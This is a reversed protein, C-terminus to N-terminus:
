EKKGYIWLKADKGSEAIINEITKLIIDAASAPSYKGPIGPLFVYNINKQEAIQPNTGGPMSALDAFPVGATISDLEKEGFIRHPVTNFIIDAEKLASHMDSIRVSKYGLAEAMALDSTKRAAITVDAGLHWLAQSLVKSIKGFGTILAKCGCITVPLMKMVAEIAGEATPVANLAAFDERAAYDYATIGRSEFAFIDLKGGFVIADPAISSYLTNLGIGSKCLPTNINVGDPTCPLPLVILKAKNIIESANGNDSACVSNDIYLSSVDCGMRYLKKALYLNRNDGGIILIKSMLRM